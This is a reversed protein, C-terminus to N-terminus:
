IYLSHCFSEGHAAFDSLEGKNKLDKGGARGRTLYQLFKLFLGFKFEFRVAKGRSSDFLHHRRLFRVVGNVMMAPFVLLELAYTVILVSSIALAAKAQTTNSQDPVDHGCGFNDRRYYSITMMEFTVLLIPFINTAFM